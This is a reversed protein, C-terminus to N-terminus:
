NEPTKRHRMKEILTTRNIRLLEAAKKQNGGTNRLAAQIILAEYNEVAKKLDLGEQDISFSQAHESKIDSLDLQFEMLDDETILGNGKLLILRELVNELERINGPWAYNMLHQMAQASIGTIQRQSKKNMYEVFHSVILPIDHKRERLPPLRLCIVNLRFYLDERFQKQAIHLKLDRNTAAVIRVDIKQSSVDGVPTLEKDQIVRLLKAQTLTNMEGIEDLFLTGQNAAAIRGLKNVTAGTFAGKIHGFLESEVLNDPIAACNLPIFPGNKRASSRHIIRAILEKGTGSEGLILVNCDVDSVRKIADLVKLLAPDQGIMEPAFLQRWQENTIHTGMADTM